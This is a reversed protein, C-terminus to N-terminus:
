PQMKTKVGASDVGDNLDALGVLPNEKNGINGSVLANRIREGIRRVDEMLGDLYKRNEPTDPIHSVQYGRHEGMDMTKMQQSLSWSSDVNEGTAVAPAAKPTVLAGTRDREGDFRRIKGNSVTYRGGNADAGIQLAHYSVKLLSGDM